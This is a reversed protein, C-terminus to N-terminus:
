IYIRASKWDSNPFSILISIISNLICVSFIWRLSTHAVSISFSCSACFSFSELYSSARRLQKWLLWLLLCIDLLPWVQIWKDLFWATNRREFRHSTLCLKLFYYCPDVLRPTILLIFNSGSPISPDYLFQFSTFM